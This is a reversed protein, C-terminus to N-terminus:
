LCVNGWLVAFLVTTVVCCLLCVNGWLVCRAVRLVDFALRPCCRHCHDHLRKGERVGQPIVRALGEQVQKRGWLPPQTVATRRHLPPPQGMAAWMPYQTQAAMTCQLMIAMPKVALMTTCSAMPTHHPLARSTIHPHPIITSMVKRPSAVM